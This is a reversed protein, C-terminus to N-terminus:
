RQPQALVRAGAGGSCHLEARGCLAVVRLPLIDRYQLTGRGVAEVGVDAPAVGRRVVHQRVTFLWMWGVSAIWGAALLYMSKGFVRVASPANPDLIVHQHLPPLSRTLFAADLAAEFSPWEGPYDAMVCATRLWQLPWHVPSM